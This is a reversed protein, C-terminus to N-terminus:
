VPTRLDIKDGEEAASSRAVQLIMAIIQHFLSSNCPARCTCDHVYRATCTHVTAPLFATAYMLPLSESPITVRDIQLCISSQRSAGSLQNLFQKHIETFLFYKIIEHMHACFCYTSKLDSDARPASSVTMSIYFFRDLSWGM